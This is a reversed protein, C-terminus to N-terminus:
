VRELAAGGSGISNIVVRPAGRRETGRGDSRAVNIQWVGPIAAFLGSFQVPDVAVVEGQRAPLYGRLLGPPLRAAYGLDRDL